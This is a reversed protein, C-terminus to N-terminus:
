ILIQNNYIWSKKENIEYWQKKTNPLHNGLNKLFLDFDNEIIEYENVKKNVVTIDTSSVPKEDNSNDNTIVSCCSSLLISSCLLASLLLVINTKLKNIKRM